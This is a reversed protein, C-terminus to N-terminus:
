ACGEVYRVEPLRGARMATVRRGNTELIYRLNSQAPDLSRVTLYHGGREYEHRTVRVRGRYISRARRETTGIHVGEPTAVRSRLAVDVRAIVEGTGLVFLNRTLAASFCEGGIGANRDPEVERGLAASAQDITMGVNVPGLGDFRLRDTPAIAASAAPAALLLAFAALLLPSRLRTVIEEVGGV